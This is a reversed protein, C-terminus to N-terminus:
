AGPMGDNAASASKQAIVEVGLADEPDTRGPTVRELLEFRVARRIVFRARSYLSSSQM